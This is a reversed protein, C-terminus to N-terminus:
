IGLASIIKDQLGFMEKEEEASREHDYGLLHLLGHIFLFTEESDRSHGYAAAQEAAKEGSIVIDGLLRPEGPAVCFSEGEEMAFSLVDTPADKGRYDRNLEHIHTNDTLLLSIEVDDKIDLVALTEKAADRFLKRLAPTTAEAKGQRDLNIKATM